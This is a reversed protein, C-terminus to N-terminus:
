AQKFLDFYEQPMLHDPLEADVDLSVRYGLEIMCRLIAGYQRVILDAEKPDHTGRWRAALRGLKTELVDLLQRDTLTALPQM